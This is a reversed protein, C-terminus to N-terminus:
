AEETKRGLRKAIFKGIETEAGNRRMIYYQQILPLVNNWVWYLVLGAAFGAFVFTFIIPLLMIVMRQTPDPPPPNLSQLIAMSIGYLLPLIGIGIILGLIPISKVDTAAWPLLGFLNGIATPDPAALDSIYGFPEHRMELTVFLTKYLAYFIPITALIPLCGALPNAKEKQYLAMIEQQQRKPDAAFRERIEKMPETLKKMKAMAAYSRNYLPFLVLKVLVTFALIALGFSGIKGQLWLLAFFFPKTLFYFMGWDIADVFRPIGLDNQYSQMVDITKAGAFLRNVSTITGGAPLVLETGITRVEMVADDVRARREFSTQFEQTQDPVLASLWYKDTLGIWGGETSTESIGNGKELRSYGRKVLKGDMIGMEGLHVLGRDQSAGPTVANLFQEQTGHRLIAGYPRLFRQQNGLNTITDTFTFLYNEDIAIQRDIRVGGGEYRLNVPTGPTLSGGGVQEWTVGLNAVPRNQEGIWFWSAYYGNDVAEPRFLRVENQRAVTEYHEKLNLDDILAGQLRISGDLKPSDFVVRSDRKLAEDVTAAREVPPNVEAQLEQEVRTQELIAQRRKAEPELVLAQYGFLVTVAVIMFIIFNRQDQQEM